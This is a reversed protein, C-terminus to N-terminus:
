VNAGSKVGVRGSTMRVATSARLEAMKLIGDKLTVHREPHLKRRTQPSKVNEQINRQM